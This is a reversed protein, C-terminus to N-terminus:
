QLVEALNRLHEEENVGTVLVDDIYCIVHPIGQLIADMAKQFLAPASAIGFPLCTYQYLGRHSNITVYQYSSPELLMQQYASSLDLTTFQKGGALTTLLDKPRPLPYQDVELAKNITVKYDGCLCLTGDQKPVPVILAAWDSYAVKEVM